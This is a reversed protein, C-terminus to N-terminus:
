QNRRNELVKLRSEIQEKARYLSEIRENQVILKENIKQIEIISKENKKVLETMSVNMDDLKINLRVFQKEIDLRKETEKDNSTKLTTVINIVTGLVAVLAFILSLSLTTDQTM